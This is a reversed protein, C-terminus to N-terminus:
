GLNCAGLSGPQSGRGPMEWRAADGMGTPAATPEVSAACPRWGGRPARRREPQVRNGARRKQM